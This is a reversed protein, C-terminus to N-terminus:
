RGSQHYDACNRTAPSARANRRSATEKQFAHTTKAVLARYRRRADAYSMGLFFNAGVSGALALSVALLPKWPVEEAAVPPEQTPNPQTPKAIATNAGIPTTAAKEAAPPSFNRWLNAADNAADNPVAQPPSQSYRDDSESSAAKPKAEPKATVTAPTPNTNWNWGTTDPQTASAPPAAPAPQRSATTAHPRPPVPVMGADADKDSTQATTPSGTGWVSSWDQEATRIETKAPNTLLSRQAPEKAPPPPFEPGTTTSTAWPDSAVRLSNDAASQSMPPTALPPPALEPRISSWSEIPTIDNTRAIAPPPAPTAASSVMPPPAPWSSAAGPAVTTSPPPPSSGLGTLNQLEQGFERAASNTRDIIEQGGHNFQQSAQQLTSDVSNRVSGAAQDLTQGAGELTWPPAQATRIPEAGITAGRQDYQRSNSGAVADQFRAVHEVPEQGRVIREPGGRMAIPTRPLEGTGVVVRINRIPTVSAPVHSEIPLRGDALVDVLEPEVQVLVEYAQPDEKAPQWGFAVGFVAVVLAEWAVVMAFDKGVLIRRRAVAASGAAPCELVFVASDVLCTAPSSPGDAARKRPATPRTPRRPRRSRQRRNQTRRPPKPPPRLRIPWPRAGPSLSLSRETPDEWRDLERRFMSLLAQLFSVLMPGVLIGVPGLVQIGGLISLLALLPHLNAQGHLVLPKIVNDIGSVVILCYIALALAVPWNGGHMAEGGVIFVNPGFFFIIVCTPIWVGAAGVFPVIAFVMTLAMLLFIPAGSPMAFYFGVGALIGQVIASLMTAVVVSRSIEGFRALLELEHRKDMPSLSIIGNIMAEGDAFFYYLAIIMIILGVVIRLAAGAM